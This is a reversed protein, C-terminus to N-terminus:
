SPKDFELLTNHCSNLNRVVRSASTICVVL